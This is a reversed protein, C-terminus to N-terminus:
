SYLEKTFLEDGSLSYMDQLVIKAFELAYEEKFMEEQLEECNLEKLENFREFMEKMICQMRYEYESEITRINM